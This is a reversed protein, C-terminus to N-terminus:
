APWSFAWRGRFYFVNWVQKILLASWTVSGFDFPFLHVRGARYKHYIEAPSLTLDFPMMHVFFLFALYAPLLRASVGRTGLSIWINRLYVTLQQGAALWGLVGIGTGITQAVIDNLSSVRPPFYLQSFEIATSAAACTPLVLLLVSLGIWWRRDVGAAAMLTFGIPVFLLM